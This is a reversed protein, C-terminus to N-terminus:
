YVRALCAISGRGAPSARFSLSQLVRDQLFHRLCGRQAFAGGAHLRQHLGDMAIFAPPKRVGRALCAQRNRDGGGDAALQLLAADQGPLLSQGERRFALLPQALREPDASREADLYGLRRLGAERGLKFFHDAREIRM